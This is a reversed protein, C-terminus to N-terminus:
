NREDFFTAATGVFVGIGDGNVNGKINRGTNGFVGNEMYGEERTIWYNYFGRDFSYIKYISNLMNQKMDEINDYYSFEYSYLLVGYKNNILNANGETLYTIWFYNQSGGYNYNKLTLYYANSEPETEAYLSLELQKIVQGDWNKYEIEKTDFFYGKYTIADFIHTNAKATLDHWKVELYYDKGEEPTLGQIVYDNDSSLVLPYETGNCVVKGSAGAVAINEQNPEELPPLTRTITIVPNENGAELLCSIVLQEKYPLEIDTITQECSSLFLNGLAALCLIAIINITKM